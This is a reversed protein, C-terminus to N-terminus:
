GLLYEDSRIGEKADPNSRDPFGGRFVFIVYNAFELVSNDDGFDVFGTRMYYSNEALTQTNSYDAPLVAVQKRIRFIVSFM